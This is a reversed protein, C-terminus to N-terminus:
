YSIFGDHLVWVSGDVYEAKGGTGSRTFVEGHSCTFLCKLAFVFTRRCLQALRPVVEIWIREQFIASLLNATSTAAASLRLSLPYLQFCLIRLLMANSKVESQVPGLPVSLHFIHSFFHTAHLCILNDDSDMESQGCGEHGRRVWEGVVVAAVAGAHLTCM